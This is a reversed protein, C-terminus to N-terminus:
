VVEGDEDDASTPYDDATAASLTVSILGFQFVFRFGSAQGDEETAEAYSLSAISVAGFEDDANRFIVAGSNAATWLAGAKVTSTYESNDDDYTVDVVTAGGSPSPAEAGYVADLDEKLQRGGTMIIRKESDSKSM